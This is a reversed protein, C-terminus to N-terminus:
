LVIKIEKQKRNCVFVEVEWFGNFLILQEDVIYLVDECDINLVRNFESFTGIGCSIYNLFWM